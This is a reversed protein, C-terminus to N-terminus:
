PCLHSLHGTKFPTPGDIGRKKVYIACSLIRLCRSKPPSYSLLHAPFIAHTLRCQIHMSVFPPEKCCNRVKDGCSEAPIGDQFCMKFKSNSRASNHQLINGEKSATAVAAGDQVAHVTPAESGSNKQGFFITSIMYLLPHMCPYKGPKVLYGDHFEMRVDDDEEEEDTTPCESEPEEESESESCAGTSKEPLVIELYELM